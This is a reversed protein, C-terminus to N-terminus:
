AREGPPLSRLPLPFADVLAADADASTSTYAVLDLSDADRLLMMTASYGGLLRRGSRVITDFVPQVDTLSGSMARLIESTAIQQGLAKGLSRRLGENEAQLEAHSREAAVPSNLPAGCDGCFKQGTPNAQRCRPCQM